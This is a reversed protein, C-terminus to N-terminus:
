YKFTEDVKEGWEKRKKYEMIKFFIIICISGMSIGVIGGIISTTIENM